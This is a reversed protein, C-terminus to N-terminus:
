PQTRQPLIEIQFTVYRDEASAEVSSPDREGRGVAGFEINTIGAALIEDRVNDARAQSLQLNWERGGSSDAYGIVTIKL